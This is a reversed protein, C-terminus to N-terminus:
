EVARVAGTFLDIQIAAEMGKANVLTLTGGSSNGLPFFAVLPYGEGVENEVGVQPDTTIGDPLDYVNKSDITDPIPQDADDKAITDSAAVWFRRQVPEYVLAYSNGRTVAQDRAYRLMAAVSKAATRLRLRDSNGGIRPFVFAAMLGILIMVVMLEFLTFGRIDSFLRKMPSAISGDTTSVRGALLIQTKM